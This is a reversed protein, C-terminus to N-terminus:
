TKKGLSKVIDDYYHSIELDSTPLNVAIGKLGLNTNICSFLEAIVCRAAKQSVLQAKNIERRQIATVEEIKKQHEAREVEVRRHVEAMEDSYRKKLADLDEKSKTKLSEIMRAYDELTAKLMEIQSDYHEAVERDRVAGVCHAQHGALAAKNKFWRGCRSCKIM